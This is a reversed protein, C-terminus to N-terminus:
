FEWHLNLTLHYLEEEDRLGEIRVSRNLRYEFGVEQGAKGSLASRGYVYLSPATYFGLTVQSKLPDFQGNDYNPDIEFTEVGLRSLQRTGLQSVQASVLGSFREEVRSLGGGSASDSRSYNALLLPLIDEQSYGETCTNFEPNELTGTITLCLDVPESTEGNQQRAGPIRIYATIDLTPNLKAINDFVVRSGSELRPTKDFLFGKGRLIEMEGIFRYAGGERILNIAGSLEADVDENKIWYNSLIDININLNWTNDGALLSMLPSGEDESAFNARYRTSLLTLDGTVTPPTEGEVHVSGEVVGTIDELEYTFPFPRPLTVDLEYYLRDLAVVTISGDILAYAKQGGRRKDKVYAEIREIVIQNDVMTVGASDTYLSDALDLYKLCGNRLYAEGELHPDSPAGFLRFDAFFDGTLQEVSPLFFSVMDFRKDSATIGINIPAEIMYGLTDSTLNILYGFQGSARYQGSDSRIIASDITVQQDRYDAGIILHGVPLDRFQLSDVTGDLLITPQDFTGGLHLELEATGGVPFDDRVMRGWANVPVARTRVLLNMSEDYNIRGRGELEGESSGLLARTIDLGASDIEATMPGRNQVAKGLVRAALSDLQLFMPYRHYDLSGHAALTMQSNWLAVSDLSVLGSDMTMTAFLSDLPKGWLSGNQGAFRVSGQQRTLFRKIDFESRCKGAFLDYVWASDSAFTGALDPDKTRGTLHAEGYGRGGPQKLFLKEKYRDLNKLDATVHLDLDHSYSIRGGVTLLNEYYSVDFGDEFVLSDKTIVMDGRASQIPYGAFESEYLEVGVDLRLRDKKFSSGELHVAGNLDSVFSNQILQSLNFGSVEADLHYSPEPTTFDLGGSGDIGCQDFVIGYLTDIALRKSRFAFEAYLNEFRAISLTGGLSVRGDILTDSLSVNGTLDIAGTLKTHVAQAVDDLKLNNIDFELQVTRDALAALGSLRIRTDDKILSLGRAVLRRDAYTIQGTAATLRFPERNTTFALQKLDASVTGEEMEFSSVLTLDSVRLTDTARAIIITAHRVSGEDIRLAPPVSPSPPSAPASRPRPLRWGGASDQALLISASDLEVFSFVYNRNWLNSLSYTLSLRRASALPLTDAPGILDVVVNEMLLGSVLDGRIEGINVRVPYSEGILASLRDSVLHELGHMRWLYVYLAILVVVVVVAAGLLGKLWWRM